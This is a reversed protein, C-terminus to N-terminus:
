AAATSAETSEIDAAPQVPVIGLARGMVIAIPAAAFSLLAGMKVSDQIPGPVTFAAVSVFLAVTFGIAAVAGLTVVHRYDMGAPKELKLGKEAFYTMGTIGLPKGIFLGALVLWTGTGLSSMVVGANILGFLGLFCEVPLKWCHEFESLTDHRDLEERAFIGLDTHAHPLLPIIPVLGLAPHINAQYFSFWCIAGPGLLYAWHSHVKQRRLLMAGCMAVLTLCLWQPVIPAQPYFLALIMLGAADDAIALLLLFAIAPHGAGFVIRAVLYSFAIDTACPVAWGNGLDITTGTFYAGLMFVGAPGLIGGVTALLPTAAKRPEHLSGGPLLSEWVEKAAIAFFLAMLIDNVIFHLSFGHQAVQEVDSDEGASSVLTADVQHHDSGGSWLSTVDFHVFDHYSHSGSQHAMNAWVLAALAGVILLFSNDVLKRFLGRPKEHGSM